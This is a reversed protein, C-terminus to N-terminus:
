KSRKWIYNVLFNLKKSNLYKIIDLSENILDNLYEKSKKLWLFYVFWKEEWWVSKWTEELNWEVDLIDDMIQFSLWIKKWFKEFNSLKDNIWSLIMWWIVSAKILAWTKKNHLKLLNDINLQKTNKEFYMDDVQWWIMWYFWINKSLLKILKIWFKADSIESLIEFAFTNLLDWVLVAEYESYKKWVTLEWRRYEDNDMCPLDDHILSYSHVLEIAVIFKIIDDSYKIESFKKNSLILFFELALIARIRKGWKTWYFIIEKFRELWPNLLDNKFYEELYYIIANDIYKKYKWYWVPLM